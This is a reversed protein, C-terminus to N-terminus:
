CLRRPGSFSVKKRVQTGLYVIFVFLINILLPAESKREQEIIDALFSIAILFAMFFWSSFWIASILLFFQGILLAALLPLLLKVMQFESYSLNM